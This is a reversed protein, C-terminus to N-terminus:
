QWYASACICLFNEIEYEKLTFFAKPIKSGTFHKKEYYKAGPVGAFSLPAPPTILGAKALSKASKIPGAHLFIKDPQKRIAPHFGIRLATDYIALL